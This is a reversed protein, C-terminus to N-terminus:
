FINNSFNTHVVSKFLNSFKTQFPNSFFLLFCFLSRVRGGRWGLGDKGGKEKKGRGIRGKQGLLGVLALAGRGRERVRENVPRGWRDAGDGVELV